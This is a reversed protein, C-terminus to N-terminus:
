DLLHFTLFRELRLGVVFGARGTECVGGGGCGCCGFFIFGGGGGSRWRSRRTSSRTGAEAKRDKGLGGVAAAVVRRSARREAEGRVGLSVKRWPRGASAGSMRWLM